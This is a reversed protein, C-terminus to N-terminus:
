LFVGEEEDGGAAANGNTPERAAANEGGIVGNTARGVGGSEREGPESTGAEEPAWPLCRVEVVERKVLEIREEMRKIVERNELIAEYLEQDQEQRVYEELEANSQELHAVSNRLEAAKAHLSSVSLSELAAAFRAPSIPGASASM